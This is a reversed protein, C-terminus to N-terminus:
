PAGFFSRTLPRPSSYVAYGSLPPWSSIGSYIIGAGGLAEQIHALMVLAKEGHSRWGGVNSRVQAPNYNFICGRNYDQSSIGSFNSARVPTLGFATRMICGDTGVKSGNRHRLWLFCMLCCLPVRGEKRRGASVTHISVLYYVKAFM